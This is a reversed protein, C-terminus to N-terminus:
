KRENENGGKIKDMEEVMSQLYGRVAHIDVDPRNAFNHLRKIQEKLDMSM